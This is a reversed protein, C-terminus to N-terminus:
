APGRIGPAPWTWMRILPDSAPVLVPVNASKVPRGVPGYVSATSSCLLSWLRTAVDVCGKPYLSVIAAVPTMGDTRITEGDLAPVTLEEAKRTVTATVPM